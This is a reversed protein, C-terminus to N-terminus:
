SAPAAAPLAAPLELTFRSGAGPASTVLLDGGLRRAFRRALALGLGLGDEDGGDDLRVAPRFIRELDERAMGRGHDVVHFRVGGAATPEVRLEITATGSHRLANLVLNRLVQAVLVPDTRLTTRPAEEVALVVDAARALPDMMGRLASVLDGPDVDAVQPPPDALAVRRADAMQHDVVALAEAAAADITALDRRLAPSGVDEFELLVETLGRISCLPTRVEHALEAALRRGEERRRADEAAARDLAAHLAQLGDAAARLQEARHDAEALRVLAEARASELAATRAAVREELAHRTERVALLNRVRAAVEVLDYPKVLFDDAGLRLARHKAESTLDATLVVVAPRDAGAAALRRLVEFGDTDAMHLDLLVLDPREGGDIAALVGAGSAHSSVDEYGQAGLFRRLLVVNDADDDVVVLRSSVDPAAMWARESQPTPAM